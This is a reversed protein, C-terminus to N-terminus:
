PKYNNILAAAQGTNLEWIAKFRELSWLPARTALRLKDYFMALGPDTLRNENNKVSEFYGDPIAREFHGAVWKETQIPPLRALLPDALALRDIIYVGPGAFYGVYGVNLLPQVKIGDMKLKQGKVVWDHFPEITNRKDYLLSSPQYYFSREDSIDNIDVRGTSFSADDISTLTPTPSIFGAILIFIFVVAGGVLSIRDMQRVLLVVAVLVAGSFFRGSMYDAGIWAIYLLYLALGTAISKERWSGRTLALGLGASIVLLSIPDWHLSNIFYLYGQELLDRRTLGTYLKAYATNPFPFGYYVISFLEWLIFPLFGLAMWQLARWSRQRFLLWGLPPVFYLITDMRNLVALGAIFSLLFVKRDGYDDNPRLFVLLFAALLLHTAPNELGSTSFDIFAKSLFLVSLGAYAGLNHSPLMKEVLLFAAMSVALSLFITTYFAERTFFYLGSLALMWLPHTYTQVREAINWTLGYGNIFNDVTRLTIYADETIWASRLLVMGFLVALFFLVPSELAPRDTSNPEM